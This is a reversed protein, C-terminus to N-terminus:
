KPNQPQSTKDANLAPWQPDDTRATKMITQIKAVEEPHQGAVNTKEGLDTTLDYLELKGDVGHRIGKWDGRRVAQHFGGEHFEWYLYDHQKQTSQGLLTPLFSIGDLTDPVPMRSAQALTPFIDWFAFPQRQVAGAAVKGPWRVILPVRIGGETLDRKHGRFPGSSQFFKPDVGGEQHPGNDSTFIVLTQNALQRLELEALLKGVYDDLRTIMAAKNQEVAPWPEDAYPAASPVEMGNGTRRGAENNAHPITYSLFLFFSRYQNVADPKHIKIFNTAATTCLDPIYQGRKGGINQPFEVRGDFEDNGENAPAYRWLFTSFYDHAHVNELYGVFDDFGKKQPVGPLGADSLGWKGILGTRYGGQHLVETITLENAQLTAGSANGRIRLHGTHQGLMLAARSPACVTSGSYFDTFRMGEAALRDLNPTKIKTQGYCGLDGHGLDDALIFLICPRRPAPPNTNSTNYAGPAQAFGPLGGVALTVTAALWCLWRRSVPSIYTNM